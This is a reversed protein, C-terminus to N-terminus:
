KTPAVASIVSGEVGIKVQQAPSGGILIRSPFSDFNAPVFEIRLQLKQPRLRPAEGEHLVDGSIVITEPDAGLSILKNIVEQQEFPTLGGSLEMQELAKYKIDEARQYITFIGWYQVVAFLIFVLVPLVLLTEIVSWGDEDILLDHKKNGRGGGGVSQQHRQCHRSHYPNGGTWNDVNWNDM